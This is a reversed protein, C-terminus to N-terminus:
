QAFQIDLGSSIWQDEPAIYQVALSDSRSLVRNNWRIKRPLLVTGFYQNTGLMHALPVLVTEGPGLDALRITVAQWGSADLHWLAEDMAGDAPFIRESAELTVERADQRGRNSIRLLALGHAMRRGDRDIVLEGGTEWEEQWFQLERMVANNQITAVGRSTDTQAPRGLLAMGSVVLYRTELDATAEQVRLGTEVEKLERNLRWTSLGLFVNFCLSVVAVLTAVVATWRKYSAETNASRPQQKPL